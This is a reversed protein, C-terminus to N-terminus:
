PGEMRSFVISAADGEPDVGLVLVDGIGGAPGGAVISGAPLMNREISLVAAVARAAGSSPWAGCLPSSSWLPARGGFIKELAKLIVDSVVSGRPLHAFVAPVRAGGGLAEAISSCVCDVRSDVDAPDGPFARMSRGGVACIAAAGRESAHGADEAVIFGCGEGPDGGQGPDSFLPFEYREDGGGAALLDCTGDQVLQVGRIVASEGSVHGDSVTVSPGRIGTIIGAYGLPANHVSNHFLTPSMNEDLGALFIRSTTDLEGYGTGFVLGIEERAREVDVAAGRLAEDISLSAMAALRSMRRRVLTPLKKKSEEGLEETRRARPGPEGGGDFLARALAETGAASPAMCGRGTVVVRRKM